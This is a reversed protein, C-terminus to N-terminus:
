GLRGQRHGLGLLLVVVSVLGERGESTRKLVVGVILVFLEGSKGTRSRGCRARCTLSIDVEDHRSEAELQGM